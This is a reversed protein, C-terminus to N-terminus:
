AAEDRGKADLVERVKRLLAESSFPKQLYDIGASVVGHRVVADDTYGSMYLIKASPRIAAFRETLQRGSMEPMVVDTILLHIDNSKKRAIELATKGNPAELVTYGARELIQRATSRVAASDEALIVIEDGRPPASLIKPESAAESGDSSLPLYIKFTTGSGPESYVWIFGGSQKVTAYVMALGLGTGKGVEKTTYFPEFIRAQTSEDMGTGTDAVSIVTYKGPAVSWHSTAYTADVDMNQTEITLKGGKPMADRANVALNVIVQELQSRDIKVVPDDDTLVTTLEIDEGILRRLIGEATSVVANVDVLRPQIVEQRSFSLLQRTLSAAAVAADRIQELDERQSGQPESEGLLLDTCSMIVTLLNNFDHAVGGALRGVADMKQAQRFQAELARKETVDRFASIRGPRGGINHAKTMAELIIKRGTRHKGVFEYMGETQKLARERVTDVSEEALFDTVPRGIVEEVTYGFIEAFGRNADRVIDDVVIDIGDFSAETIKRFRAESEEMQALQLQLTQQASAVRTAMTEFARSLQGLEDSRPLQVHRSYDGLTIAVAAERLDSLPRTINRSLRWLLFATLALLALGFLAANRLFADVPGMVYNRPLEVLLTWPTGAIRQELAYKAGRGRGTREYEIVQHPKTTSVPPPEAKLWFDSWVDGSANGIYVGAGPGILDAIAKGGDPAASLHGREVLYGIIKGKEVVPAGLVFVPTDAVLHLPGTVASDHQANIGLIRTKAAAPVPDRGADTTLLTEGRENWLSLDVVQRSTGRIAKLVGAAAARTAPSPASLFARLEPKDADRRMGGGMRAISTHLMDSVQATVKDLRDQAAGIASRRVQVYAFVMAAVIATALLATMSLPLRLQISQFNTVRAAADSDIAPERQATVYAPARVISKSLLLQSLPSSRGPFVRVGKATIESEQFASALM